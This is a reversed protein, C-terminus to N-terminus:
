GVLCKDIEGQLEAERATTGSAASVSKLKAAQKEADKKSKLLTEELKRLEARKRDFAQTHEQFAARIQMSSAIDGIRAHNADCPSPTHVYGCRVEESAKREGQARIRWEATEVELAQGKERHAEAM